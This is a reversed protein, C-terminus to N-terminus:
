YNAEPEIEFVLDGVAGRTVSLLRRQGPWSIMPTAGRALAQRLKARATTTLLICGKTDIRGQALLPLREPIEGTQEPKAVAFMRWETNWYLMEHGPCFRKQFPTEALAPFRQANTALMEIVHLRYLGESSPELSPDLKAQEAMAAKIRAPDFSASIQGEWYSHMRQIAQENKLEAGRKFWELAATKDQPQGQGEEQMRGLMYAASGLGRESALRFWPIAEAYHEADFEIAGRNHAARALGLEAGKTAWEAAHKCYANAEARSLESNYLSAQQRRILCATTYVVIADDLTANRHEIKWARLFSDGALNCSEADTSEDCLAKRARGLNYLTPIELGLKLARSFHVLALDPRNDQYLDMSGLNHEARASDQRAALDYFHRALEPDANVGKGLHYAKGLLFQADANGQQAMQQAAKFFEQYRGAEFLKELESAPNTEAAVCIQWLCGLLVWLIKAQMKIVRVISKGRVVYAM